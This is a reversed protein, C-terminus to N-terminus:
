RLILKLADVALTVVQVYSTESIVTIQRFYGRWDRRIYDNIVKRGCHNLFMDQSYRAWGDNVYEVADDLSNYCARNLIYSSPIEIGEIRVKYYNIEKKM